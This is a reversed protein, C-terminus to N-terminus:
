KVLGIMFANVVQKYRELGFFLTINVNEGVTILQQVAQLGEITAPVKIMVNPKNIQKWLRMSESVTLETNYALHPSVEISVLDMKAMQASM